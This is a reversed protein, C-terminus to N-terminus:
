LRNFAVRILKSKPKAVLQIEAGGKVLLVIKYLGHFPKVFKNAKRTKLSPDYLFVVNGESFKSNKVFKDNQKKQHTQAKSITKQALKWAEAM